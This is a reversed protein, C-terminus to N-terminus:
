NNRTNIHHLYLQDRHGTESPFGGTVPPNGKCFVVWIALSMLCVHPGGPASLVWTPEMNAGHVKSDPFHLPSKINEWNGDQVFQKYISTFQPVIVGM